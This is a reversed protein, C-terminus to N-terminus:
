LPDPDSPTGLVIELLDHIEADVRTAVDKLKLDPHRQAMRIFMAILMEESIVDSGLWSRLSRRVMIRAINKDLPSPVEAM